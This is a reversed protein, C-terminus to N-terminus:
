FGLIGPEPPSALLLTFLADVALVVGVSFLAARGIPRREVAVLLALVLGSMSIVFGLWAYCAVALGTLLGVRLAHPLDDWRPAPRSTGRGLALVLGFLLMGLLALKPLMGAGPASFTGFPLDGSLAYVGAGFVILVVGAVRDM